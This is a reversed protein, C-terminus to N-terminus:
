YKQWHRIQKDKDQSNARRSRIRVEKMKKINGKQKIVGEKMEEQISNNNSNNQKQQIHPCM